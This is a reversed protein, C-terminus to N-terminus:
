RNRIKLEGGGFIVVGTIILQREPDQANIIQREDSYGGFIPNVKVQVDWTSPVFITSGGFLTFIDITNVGEALQAQSLDIEAGGFVSSLRGGKFSSSTIIKHTGSFVVFEDIVDGPYNQDNYTRHENENRRVLMLIGVLILFAPWLNFIGVGFYDSVLFISGVSILTIGPGRKERVFFMFLGLMILFSYWQYIVHPFYIHWIHLNDLLLVVGLIIIAVSFGIKKNNSTGM